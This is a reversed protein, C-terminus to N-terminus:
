RLELAVYRVRWASRRMAFASGSRALNRPKDSRVAVFRRATRVDLFPAIVVSGIGDFSSTVLVPDMTAEEVHM